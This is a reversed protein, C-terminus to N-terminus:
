FMLINGDFSYILATKVGLLKVESNVTSCSIERMYHCFM